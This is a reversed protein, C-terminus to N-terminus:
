KVFTFLCIIFMGVTLQAACQFLPSLMFSKLGALISNPARRKQAM